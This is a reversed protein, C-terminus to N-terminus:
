SVPPKEPSVVVGASDSPNLPGFDTWHSPPLTMASHVAQLIQEKANPVASVAAAIICEAMERCAAAAAGAIESVTEPTVAVAAKVIETILECM